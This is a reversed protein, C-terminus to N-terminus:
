FFLPNIEYSLSPRGIKPKTKTARLWNSEALYELGAKIEETDSLGTWGSQKIKRATVTEDLKGENIKKAILNAVTAEPDAAVGYIRLAHSKLYEGWVIATRLSTISVEPEDSTAVHDILALSPILSRYKAFHSQLAEPYEDSRVAKELECRWKDFLSQAEETFRVYPVSDSLGQNGIDGPKLKDFREILEAADTKAMSDPFRDVNRFETEVDPWVALQFQQLLGDDHCDGSQIRRVRSHLNSPQIGGFISTIANECRITGRMIRDVVHRGM